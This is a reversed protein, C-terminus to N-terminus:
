PLQGSANKYPQYQRCPQARLAQCDPLETPVEVGPVLPLAVSSPFDGFHAVTHTPVNEHQLLDFRWLAMSDGPTDVLIRIRSGARFPHSIPMMEVRVENWEGSALMQEDQVLHSPIPRLETSADRLKRRSARLWGVQVYSEMEDPRVETISVELDADSATSHLWLDVSAHGILVMAEPLPESIFSLAYGPQPQGYAWDPHLAEVSGSAILSRDGAEADHQFASAGGNEDPPEQALVGDPHFYWRSSETEPIPWADFHAEFTGQPAGYEIDPHAGSEFIVRVPKEAEYDALAEEYNTYHEFRPAPVELVAGYTQEMFYPVMARLDPTIYPVKRQVYFSLFNAWEAVIQPSFGDKHIGNTMTFRPGASGTMKGFLVPFHPGTQEDQNQGVLFVPVEIEHVFASPDLPKAVEDNYYPNDYAKQIVDLMQSHLLQHEECVTDGQAVLEEIWGHAYPKAKNLVHEIWEMAFGINYIGGPIMTTATNAIVSFPAIAALSPPRAKAVFLQAIGPYSLGVMGVKHHKVWPQRAVIEVVDYGDLIQLPEFYDYAGGSCGTGRVNVGIVAYGMMGMILGSAYSPADCLIPFIGCFLEAEGGVPKGPRSPSYGSYNVLTPYPGEDAPGPLALFYSLLNGDRMKIYGYGVDLTQSEYFEEGPFSGAVSVVAIPGTYDETDDAQQVRYGDGPALDRFILSGQYDTEGAAVLEGDPGLLQLDVEPTASWVYVMNVTGRVKFNESTRDPYGLDPVLDVLMTDGPDVEVAADDSEESWDAVETADTQSQGGGCGVLLGVALVVCAALGTVKKTRQKRTRV